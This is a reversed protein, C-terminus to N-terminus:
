YFDLLDDTKLYLVYNLTSDVYPFPITEYYLRFFLTYLYM